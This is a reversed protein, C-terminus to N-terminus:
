EEVTYGVRSVGKQRSIKRVGVRGCLDTTAVHTGGCPYVDVEGIRVVRLEGSSEWDWGEPVLRELGEREFDEKGWFSIRVPEASAVIEDVKSQIAAKWDSSILGSFECSASSPFHSAKLESFDPVSASVTSRVAGGLVHGATHLRSYLTRKTPDVNLLIPTSPKPLAKTATTNIFRVLHLVINPNTAEHRALRMELTPPPQSTSESETTSSKGNDEEGGSPLITITGEDSPQGGGQPHFITEEATLIFDQEPNPNAAKFLSSNAESLDSLPRFSTIGTRLSLTSADHQYRLITKQAMGTDESNNEAMKFLSRTITKQPTQSRYGALLTCIPRIRIPYFNQTLVNGLIYM